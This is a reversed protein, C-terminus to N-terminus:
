APALVLMVVLFSSLINLFFFLAFIPARQEEQRQIRQCSCSGAARRAAASCSPSAGLGLHLWARGGPPLRSKNTPLHDKEESHLLSRSMVHLHLPPHSIPTVHSSPSAYRALHCCPAFSSLTILSSLSPSFLSPAM